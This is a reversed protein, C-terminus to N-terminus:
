MAEQKAGAAKAEEVTAIATDKVALCAQDLEVFLEQVEKDGAELGNGLEKTAANLEKKSAANDQDGQTLYSALLFNNALQDAAKREVSGDEETKAIIVSHAACAIFTDHWEQLTPEETSEDQAVATFPTMAFLCLPTCLLIIKKM